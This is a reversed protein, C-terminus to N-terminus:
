KLEEDRRKEALKRNQEYYWMKELKQETLNESPHNYFYNSKDEFKNISSYKVPEGTTYFTKFPHM